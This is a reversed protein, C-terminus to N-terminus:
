VGLLEDYYSLKYIIQVTFVLYLASVPVLHLGYICICYVNYMQLVTAVCYWTFCLAFIYVKNSVNPRKEM